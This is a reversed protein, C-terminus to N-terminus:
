LTDVYERQRAFFAIRQMEGSESILTSHRKLSRIWDKQIRCIRANQTEMFNISYVRFLSAQFGPKEMYSYAAEFSINSLYVEMKNGNPFAGKVCFDEADDLVRHLEGRIKEADTGSILGLRNFYRVEEVFSRFVNSDWIYTSSAAGRLAAVLQNQLRVLEQPVEIASLDGPTDLQENQFMWRALRFRSLHDYPGYFNFPVTNAATSVESCPTGTLYTFFKLYRAAIEGYNRFPDESSLLKVDFGDNSYANGAIQDLSLGLHRSVAAMETFSFPVEGRLRRYVAERGICLIETIMGALNEGAPLRERLMEVLKEIKM